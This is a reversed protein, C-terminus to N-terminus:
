AKVKKAIKAVTNALTTIQAKLAAMLTAVQTALEEVAATAADAADRSEEAAVTAADAAEAALNAADTAANAADIAEAAADSAANAANVSADEATVEVTVSNVGAADYSSGVGEEDTASTGATYATFVNTATTGDILGKLADSQGYVATNFGVSVTAPGGTVIFTVTGNSATNAEATTASGFYGTGATRVVKVPAGEVTNGFRDKVTATISNGSVTASITRAETPTEQAFIVPATDSIGGATATVTYTGALWGYVSATATGTSSTYRAVSTTSTIAAGTGAITFTVPIGSMVLGAADKVTATVTLLTAEAGDGAKIDEPDTPYEDVGTSTTNPTTLLVTAVTYTGYTITSTSTDNGAAFTVVDSVGTTGTDVISATVRGDANTILTESARASNRGAVTVTVSQGVMEVGFQNYVTATIANTAGTASKFSSPSVTIDDAVAVEGGFVLETASAGGVNTVRFNANSTDSDGLASHSITITKSLDDDAVTFYVNWRLDNATKNALGQIAGEDKVLLSGYLTAGPDAFTWKLSTSTATSSVEWATGSGDMGTAPGTFTHTSDTMTEAAGASVSASTSVASSMTGSGSATVTMTGVASGLVNVFATGNLFDAPALTATTATGMTGSTFAGTSANLSAKIVYGGTVSVAIAEDGTIMAPNGAADKLTVKVLSGNTSSIPHAGTSSLAISAPASSTATFSFSTNLDGAVYAKNAFADTGAGALGTADDVSVLVSYSGAVDAKWSLYVTKTLTDDAGTTLDVAAGAVGAATRAVLDGTTSSTVVGQYQRGDTFATNTLTGNTQQTGLGGSASGFWLRSNSDGDNTTATTYGLVSVGSNIAANGGSLPAATIKAAVTFTDAALNDSMNVTIAVTATEGVRVAPVTGVTISTFTIAAKAPVVSLLGFGLASVAVLAIRKLTTKTSMQKREIFTSGLAKGSGAQYLSSGKVKHHLARAVAGCEGGHIRVRRLFKFQPTM